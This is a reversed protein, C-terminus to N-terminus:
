VELHACRAGSQRGEGGPGGLLKGRQLHSLLPGRLHWFQGLTGPKRHETSVVLTTHLTGLSVCVTLWLPSGQWGHQELALMLGRSHGKPESALGVPSPGPPAGPWPFGGQCLGAFSHFGMHPPGGCRPAHVVGAKETKGTCARPLLGPHPEHDWQQPLPAVGRDWMDWGQPERGVRETDM